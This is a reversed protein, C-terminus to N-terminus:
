HGKESAIDLQPPSWGSCTRARYAKAFIPTYRFQVGPVSNVSRRLETSPWDNCLTSLSGKRAKQISEIHRLVNFEFSLTQMSTLCVIQDQGAVRVVLDGCCGCRSFIGVAPSRDCYATLRQFMLQFHLIHSITEHYHSWQRCRFTLGFHRVMHIDMWGSVSEWELQSAGALSWFAEIAFPPWSWTNVRTIASYWPAWPLNCTFGQTIM